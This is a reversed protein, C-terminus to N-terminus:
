KLINCSGNNIMFDIDKICEFQNLTNPKWIKM